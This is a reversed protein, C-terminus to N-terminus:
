GDGELDIGKSSLWLQSLEGQLRLDSIFGDTNIRANQLSLENIVIRKQFLPWLQVDAVLRSVDAITDKQQPHLENPKIARFEEIGLNLPWELRVRGVSIDMDTKESVISTVKQVAWNQIPPCYLLAALILILLIPTLAALIVWKLAKRM